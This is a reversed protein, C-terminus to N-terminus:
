APRGEDPATAIQRRFVMFTGGSGSPETGVFSAGLSRAVASSAENGELVRLVVWGAWSVNAAWGLTLMAACRAFGRGRFAPFVVYSLNVETGEDCRLEVGGALEGSGADTIAWHRVPGENEWSDVWERVAREVNSRPAPGPFEFWRIQEADEGALWADVDSARVRRLRVIGDTM